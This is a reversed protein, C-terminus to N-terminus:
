QFSRHKIDKNRFFEFLITVSFLLLFGYVSDDIPISVLRFGLYEEPNYIVVPNKTFGGTLVGNFFLFPLYAVAYALYFRTRYTNEFNLYHYLLIFGTLLFTTSTYLKGINLFGILLFLAILFVSIQKDYRSLLDKRIYANLCEYIFVCAFPVNFFFLWEELPLYFITKGLFYNSNFDWVGVHTFYIDWLIFFFGVIFIAPFLYKWKKYFHVKKDFSLAFVPFFTFIHLIAYLNVTELLPVLVLNNVEFLLNNPSVTTFLWLFIITIGSFVLPFYKKLNLTYM